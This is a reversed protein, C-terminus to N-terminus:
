EDEDGLSKRFNHFKVERPVKYGKRQLEEFVKEPVMELTRNMTKKKVGNYSELRLNRLEGTSRIYDFMYESTTQFAFDAGKHEGKYREIVTAKFWKKLRNKSVSNIEVSVPDYQKQIEDNRRRQEDLSNEVPEMLGDDVSEELSRRHVDRSHEQAKETSYTKGSEGCVYKDKMEM